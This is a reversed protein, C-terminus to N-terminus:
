NEEMMATTYVSTEMEFIVTDRNPPNVTIGLKNIGEVEDLTFTMIFNEDSTQVFDGAMNFYCTYEENENKANTMTAIQGIDGKENRYLEAINQSQLVALNRQLSEQSKLHAVTFLRVCVVSSLSFFLIAVILEILFLNSKSTARM